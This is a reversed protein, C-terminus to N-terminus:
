VIVLQAGVIVFQGARDEAPAPTIVSTTTSVDVTHGTAAASDMAEEMIEAAPPEELAKVLVGADGATLIGRPVLDAAEPPKAPEHVFPPLSPELEESVYARPAADEVVKM